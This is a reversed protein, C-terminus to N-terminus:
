SPLLFTSPYHNNVVTQLYLLAGSRFVEANLSTLPTQGEPSLAVTFYSPSMDPLPAPSAPHSVGTVNIPSSHRSASDLHQSPSRSPSVRGQRLTTEIIRARECLKHVSLTGGLQQQDKWVELDATEALALMIDDAHLPIFSIRSNGSQHWCRRYLRVRAAWSSIWGYPIARHLRKHTPGCFLRDQDYCGKICGSFVHRRDTLSAPFFM